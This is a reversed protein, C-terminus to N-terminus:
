PNIEAVELMSIARLFVLRRKAWEAHNNLESALQKLRSVVHSVPHKHPQNRMIAAASEVIEGPELMFAEKADYFGINGYSMIHLSEAIQEHTMAAISEELTM